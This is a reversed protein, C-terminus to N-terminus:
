VRPMLAGRHLRRPCVVCVTSSREFYRSARQHRGATGRAPQRSM